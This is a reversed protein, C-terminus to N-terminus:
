ALLELIEEQSMFDFCKSAKLDNFNSIIKQTEAQNKNRTAKVMAVLITPNLCAENQFISLEKQAKEFLSELLEKGDIEPLLYYAPIFIRSVANRSFGGIGGTGLFRVYHSPTKELDISFRWHVYENMPGLCVWQWFRMDTFFSTNIKSAILMDHLKLALAFDIHEKSFEKEKAETVMSQIYTFDVDVGCSELFDESPFTAGPIDKKTLTKKFYQAKMNFSLNQRQHWSM